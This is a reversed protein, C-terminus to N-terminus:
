MNFKLPTVKWVFFGFIESRQFVLMPIKPPAGLLYQLLALYIYGGQSSVYGEGLCKQYNDKEITISKPNQPLDIHFYHKLHFQISMRLSPFIDQKDTSVQHNSIWWLYRSTSCFRIISAKLTVKKDGLQLDSIVKSLTM